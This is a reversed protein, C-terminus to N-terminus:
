RIAFRVTTLFLETISHRKRIEQVSFPNLLLNHLLKEKV